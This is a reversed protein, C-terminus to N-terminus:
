TRSGAREDSYRSTFVGASGASRGPLAARVAVAPRAPPRGAASRGASRTCTAVEAQRCAHHALVPGPHLHRHRGGQILRAAAHQGGHQVRFLLPWNLQRHQQGLHGHGPRQARAPGGQQLLGVCAPRHPPQHGQGLPDLGGRCTRRGHGLCEDEAM